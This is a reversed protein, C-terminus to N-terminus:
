QITITITGTATAGSTDTVTYTINDTGLEDLNAIYLISDPLPIAFGKAARTVGTIIVQDGDPDDFWPYITVPQDADVTRTIDPATPARNRTDAPLVTITLTESDMGGRSNYVTITFIHNGVDSPAPRWSFEGQQSITAGTPAGKLDFTLPAYDIDTATATFNLNSGASISRNGLFDLVPNINDPAVVTINITATATGGRGDSVAYTIEESGLMGGIYVILDHSLFADVVRGLAAASVSKITIYGHDPDAIVPRFTMAEGLVVSATINEPVPPLNSDGARLVVIKIDQWDVGGRNDHVTITVTHWGWHRSIPIWNFDGGTTMTADAPGNIIGFTLPDGDDDTAAAMFNLHQRATTGTEDTVDLVPRANGPENIYITITGVAVGGQDDSITYIIDDIGSQGADPTYLIHGTSNTDISGKAAGTTNTIIVNTGLPSNAPPAITVPRGQVTQVIVDPADQPSMTFTGAYVDSGTYTIDAVKAFQYTYTGLELPQEVWTTRPTIPRLLHQPPTYLDPLEWGFQYPERVASNINTFTYIVSGTDDFIRGSIPYPSYATILFTQVSKTGYTEVTAVPPAIQILVNASDSRGMEDYITYTYNIPIAYHPAWRGPIYILHTGNYKVVGTGLPNVLRTPINHDLTVSVPGEFVDNAFIDIVIADFGNSVVTDDNAAPLNNRDAFVDRPVTSDLLHPVYDRCWYYPSFFFQHQNPFNYPNACISLLHRPGKTLVWDPAGDTTYNFGRVPMISDLVHATYENCWALDQRLEHKHAITGCVLLIQYQEKQKTWNPTYKVRAELMDLMVHNIHENCWNWHGEVYSSPIIIERCLATLPNPGPGAAWEPTYVISDAFDEILISDLTHVTYEGCWERDGPLDFVRCIALIQNSGIGTVWEPTYGTGNAFEEAPPAALDSVSGVYENCWRYDVMNENHPSIAPACMWLLQNLEKGAAWDPTYGSQDAFQAKDVDKIVGSDPAATRGYSIVVVQSKYDYNGQDDTVVVLLVYTGDGIGISNFTITGTGNGHDILSVADVSTRDPVVSITIQDGEPDVAHVDLVTLARTTSIPGYPEFGNYTIVFEPKDNQEEDSPLESKTPYPPPVSDLIHAVYEGCWRRDEPLEFVRCIALIQNPGIGKAWKPTYGNSDAFEEAPLAVSDLINSIYENCWRYDAVHRNDPAIAFACMSLLQGPEKGVAWDPTYGTIDAFPGAPPESDVPHAPVAAPETGYGLILSGVAGVATVGIGIIMCNRAKKRDRDKLIYYAIAGGVIGLFVPLLYYAPSAVSRTESM